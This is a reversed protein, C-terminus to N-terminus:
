WTSMLKASYSTVVSEKPRSNKKRNTTQNKEEYNFALCLLIQYEVKCPVLMFSKYFGPSSSIIRDLITM